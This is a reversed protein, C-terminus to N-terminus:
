AAAGALQLCLQKGEPSFRQVLRSVREDKLRPQAGVAHPPQGVGHMPKIKGLTHAFNVHLASSNM